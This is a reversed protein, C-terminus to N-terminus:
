RRRTVRVPKCFHAPATWGVIEHVEGDFRVVDGLRLRDPRGSM